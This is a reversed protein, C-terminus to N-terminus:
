APAPILARRVWPALEFEPNLALICRVNRATTSLPVVVDGPRGELYLAQGKSAAFDTALRTKGIGPEGALIIFQGRDWAEEMRSWAEERGVLVPPRLVSLPLPKKLSTPSFPTSAGRAVERALAVTEPLPELGFQTRLVEQLRHYAELAAPRDGNLHHLRMLRRYTEESVPDLELLREAYGRAEAFVGQAELHDLQATLSRRKLSALHERAAALWEAFPLCDDYDYHELLHGTATLVGGHDGSFARVELRVADVELDGALRLTDEGEVLPHERFLRVRRLLQRLNVRAAEERSEPWFLYALKSRTTPGELALYALLAAPKREVVTEGTPGNLQATGLLELQWAKM